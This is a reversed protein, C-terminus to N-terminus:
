QEHPVSSYYHWCLLALASRYPTFPSALQDTQKPTPRETLGLLRGFGVRVALDGSPWVDTRGLSFMLYMQASWTGFGRIATIRQLVEEDSMKPMKELPLEGEVVATALSRLYSVKQRSLGAARLTEDDRSLLMEPELQGNLSEVLPLTIAEAARTSVQQGVVIKALSEFGHTRKRAAPLGIVELAIAVREDLDAAAKLAKAIHADTLRYNAVRTVLQRGENLCSIM